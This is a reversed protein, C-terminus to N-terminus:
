LVLMDVPMLMHAMTTWTVLPTPSATKGMRELLHVGFSDKMIWSPRWRDLGKGGGALSCGLGLCYLLIQYVSGNLSLAM